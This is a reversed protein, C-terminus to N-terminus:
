KRESKQEKLQAVLAAAVDIANSPHLVTNTTVIQAAGAQQLLQYADAAFIAHVAMCIPAPMHLHKLHKITEAMTHGSSIIDDILVPAYAPWSQIAPISIKVERDGYRQKQLIVYPAKALAAIRSVWQESESDPGILLPSKVQQSIWDALLPAAPIARAPISYIENLSNYRHLHPDVTLLGDFHTSVLQAFYRSTVAEGPNFAKDQRMYGLYPAVLNIKKAGMDRLLQVTFLLPMIKTDPQYLSDILIVAKNACDSLIRVYSEGDPFCRMILNGSEAGLQKVIAQHLVANDDLSFVILKM